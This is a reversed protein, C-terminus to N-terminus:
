PAPRWVLLVCGFPPSNKTNRGEPNGPTGFQIRSPLFHTRFSGTDRPLDRFPEVLDQWFPQEARNAPLLMAIVSPGGERTAEKWAKAVWPGLDSFPPNVWTRGTWPRELGNDRVGYWRQAWHSAECAAADLDWETVGALKMCLAMTSRTTYREDRQEPALVPLEPFLGLGTM